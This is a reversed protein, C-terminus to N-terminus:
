EEVCAEIKIRGTLASYSNAGCKRYIQGYGKPLELNQNFFAGKGFHCLIAKAVAENENKHWNNYSWQMSGLGKCETITVSFYQKKM